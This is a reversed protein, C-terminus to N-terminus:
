NSEVLIEMDSGFNIVDLIETRQYKYANNENNWSRININIHTDENMNMDNILSLLQKINM